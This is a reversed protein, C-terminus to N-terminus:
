EIGSTKRGDDAGGKRREREFWFGFGLLIVGGIIFVLSKPMFDLTLDLYYRLILICTFVIGLLVGKKIQWLLFAGLALASILAGAEMDYNTFYWLEENTMLLGAIGYMMTGTFHEIEYPKHKLAMFIGTAAYAFIVPIAELDYIEIIPATVMVMSLTTIFFLWPRNHVKSDWFPIVLMPIAWFALQNLEGSYGLAHITTLVTFGTMLFPDKLLLALPLIGVAWLLFANHFGSSFHFMQGVLFIGAGYIITGLIILARGTRPSKESLYLGSFSSVLMASVIITFKAVKGLYPWNSAIFSLVGAGILLVGILVLSRIFQSSNDREYRTLIAERQLDDILGLGVWESSEETLFHQHNKSISKREM